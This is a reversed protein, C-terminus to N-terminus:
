YIAVVQYSRTGSQIGTVVLSGNVWSWSHYVLGSLIEEGGEAEPVASIQVSHPETPVGSITFRNSGFSVGNKTPANTSYRLNWTKTKFGFVTDVTDAGPETQV